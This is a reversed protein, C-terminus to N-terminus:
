KGSMFMVTTPDRTCRLSAQWVPHVCAAAHSVAVNSGMHGMVATRSRGASQRFQAARFLCFWQDDPWRRHRRIDRLQDRYVLDFAPVTVTTSKHLVTLLCFDTVIALVQVNSRGCCGVVLQIIPLAVCQRREQPLRYKLTEMLHLGAGQSFLRSCCIVLVYKTHQRGVCRHILGHILHTGRERIDNQALWCRLPLAPRGAIATMRPKFRAGM